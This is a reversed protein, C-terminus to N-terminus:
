FPVKFIENFIKTARVRGYNKVLDSFDKSKFETPIELHLIGQSKALEVGKKRGINIDKDFDNDFLLYILIFRDKLEEMVSNKPLIGENQLSVAPVDILNRIAMVDKLSKTIILEHGTNPLQGWGHWISSDQNTVWKYKNNFPQYIKYTEIGDKFEKFSYAFTDAKIIENGIFFYSIPHVGYYLLLKKSVGYRSWFERDGKNWERTKVGIRKDEEVRQMVEERSSFKSSDYNKLTKPMEEILFKDALNFDTAIKSLAQFFNIKFLIQVFKICDGKGGAFDKFCIEGSSGRFYGFSPNKENRFPSLINGRFTVEQGTYLRYIDVDLVEKLLAEKSILPKYNKYLM